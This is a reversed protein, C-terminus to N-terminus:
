VGIDDLTIGVEVSEVTDSSAHVGVISQVIPLAGSDVRAITFVSFNIFRSYINAPLYENIRSLDTARFTSLHLGRKELEPKFLLLTYIILYYLYKCLDPTNSTHIGIHVNDLIPSYQIESRGIVEQQSNLTDIEGSHDALGARETMESGDLLQISITPMVEDIMSFHQVIRVDYKTIFDVIETIKSEGYKASLFATKFHSFVADPATPDTKFWNLGIRIVDELLFDVPFLGTGEDETSPPPPYVLQSPTIM